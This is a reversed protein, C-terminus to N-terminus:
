FPPLDLDPDGPVENRIENMARRAVDDANPAPLKYSCGVVLAVRRARLDESRFLV